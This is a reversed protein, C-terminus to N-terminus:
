ISFFIFLLFVFAEIPAQLLIREGLLGWGGFYLKNTLAKMMFTAFQLDLLKNYFVITYTLSVLM